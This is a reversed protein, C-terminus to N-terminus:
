NGDFLEYLLWHNEVNNQTLLVNVDLLMNQRHVLHNILMLLLELWELVYVRFLKVFVYELIVEHKVLKMEVEEVYM